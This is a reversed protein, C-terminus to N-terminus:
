PASPACAADVSHLSALAAGGYALRANWSSGVSLANILRTSSWSSGSRKTRTPEAM